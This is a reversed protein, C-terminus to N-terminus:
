FNAQLRFQVFHYDDNGALNGRPSGGDAFEDNNVFTLNFLTRVLPNAYWNLGLTWHSAAGGQVGGVFDNLDLTSYRLALEWAGGPRIPAVPGFEGEDALYSHHEGTPIWTALVYGGGLAVDPRDELRRVATYLYEGQLLFSGAALAAETALSETYDVQAIRDTTLFRQESIQTESFSRFRAQDSGSNNADPTRRTLALGLHLLRNTTYIPRYVLRGTLAIAEDDGAAAQDGDQGFLGVATYWRTGAGSLQLGIKRGPTLAEIALAREAFILYRSSTLRELGFPEKFQGITVQVRDAQYGIWADNVDVADGALDIDLEAEWRQYLVTHIGIRARRLGSGSDLTNKNEFYHAADFYVRTDLWGRFEDNASGFSLPHFIETAGSTTALFLLIAIRSPYTRPIIM